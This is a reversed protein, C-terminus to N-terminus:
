AQKKTLLVTGTGNFTVANASVNDAEFEAGYTRAGGGLSFPYVISNGDITVTIAGSCVFSLKKWGSVVVSAPNTLQEQSPSNANTLKQAESIQILQNAASADGGGGGGGSGSVANNFYIDNLKNALDDITGAFLTPAGGFDQVMLTGDNVIIQTPKGEADMIHLTDDNPNKHQVKAVCNVSLSNIITEGATRTDDIINVVNTLKQILIAM